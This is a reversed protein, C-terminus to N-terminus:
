GLIALAQEVHHEALGVEMDTLVQHAALLQLELDDLAVFSTLPESHADIWNQIEQCRIMGIDPLSTAHDHSFIPTCGIIEGRFGNSTLLERLEDLSYHVRWTSSIVVRAQSRQVIENLRRIAEPNFTTNSGFAIQSLSNLVGDFDLFVIKM